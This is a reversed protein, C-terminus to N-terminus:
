SLLPSPRTFTSHMASPIAPDCLHATDTWPLTIAAPTLQAELSFYKRKLTPTEIRHSHVQSFIKKNVRRDMNGKQTDQEQLTCITSLFAHNTNKETKNLYSQSCLLMKPILNLFLNLPLTFHLETCESPLFHKIGVQRALGLTHSPQNDIHEYSNKNQLKQVKPTELSILEKEQQTNKKYQEVGKRKLKRKEFM